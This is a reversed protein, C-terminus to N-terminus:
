TKRNEYHPTSLRYAYDMSSGMKDHGIMKHLSRLDSLQQYLLPIGLLLVCLLPFFFLTFLAATASLSVLFSVSRGYFRDLCGVFDDGVSNKTLTTGWGHTPYPALTPEQVQLYLDM